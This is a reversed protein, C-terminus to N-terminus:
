NTRLIPVQAVDPMGPPYVLSVLGNILELTASQIEHGPKGQSTCNIINFIYKVGRGGNIVPVPGL